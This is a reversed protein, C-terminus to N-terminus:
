NNASIRLVGATALPMLALAGALGAGLMMLGQGYGFGAIANAVTNAGLILVPLYLPVTVLSLLLGGSRLCVTVAAGLAGILSMIATGIILSLMLPWYGGEPLALMGGLLPSVLALPLGSTLWHVLVKALVTLYLPQPSLLYQELSGDEYDGRFLSDLSLLTSLLAMIWLIGPAIAALLRESPDVGLPLLTIALLFFILPQFIDSRHRWVLTLDRRIVAVLGALTSWSESSM